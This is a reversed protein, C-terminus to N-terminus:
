IMYLKVYSYVHSDLEHGIISTRLTLSNRTNIEGLLKSLGYIDSSDAIDNETYLGKDGKFVCDTCIHIFRKNFIDCSQAVLEPFITNINIVDVRNLKKIAPKTVGICNIVVDYQKVITNINQISLSSADIQDRTINDCSYHTKLYRYCYGGIMGTGGLICIKM